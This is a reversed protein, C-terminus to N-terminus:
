LHAPCIATRSKSRNLGEGFYIEKKEKYMHCNNPDVLQFLNGYSLLPEAHFCLTRNGTEITHPLTIYGQAAGSEWIFINIYIGIGRAGTFRLVNSILRQFLDARIQDPNHTYILEEM